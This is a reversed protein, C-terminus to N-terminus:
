DLSEQTVQATATPALGAREAVGMASKLSAITGDVDSETIRDPLAETLSEVVQAPLGAATVKEKIMLGGLFSTKDLGQPEPPTNENARQLGAATLEDATATKLAALVDATTVVEAEQSETEIGGALVRTAKGGAAPDSVVDASNVKTIATAEQLRRGGVSIPRLVTMADHSIGVLPQLGQEQAAITADLAEATHTAGPLLCLDGDLGDAVSEVNRYYGI